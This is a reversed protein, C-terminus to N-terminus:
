KADQLNDFYEQFEAQSIKTETVELGVIRSEQSNRRNKNVLNGKLDELPFEHSQLASRRERRLRVNASDEITRYKM